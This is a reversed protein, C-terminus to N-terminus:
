SLFLLYFTEFSEPLFGHLIRFSSRSSDWSSACFFDGFFKPHFASLLRQLFRQFLKLIFEQFNRFFVLLSRPFSRSLYGQLFRQYFKEFFEPRFGQLVGFSIGISHFLKMINGSFKRSSSRICEWSLDRSFSGDRSVAKRSDKISSRWLIGPSIKPPIEPISM